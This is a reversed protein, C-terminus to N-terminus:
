VTLVTSMKFRLDKMLEDVKYGYDKFLAVNDGMDFETTGRIKMAETAQALREEDADVKPRFKYGEILENIRQKKEEKERATNAKDVVRKEIKERAAQDRLEVKDKNEDIKRKLEEQARLEKEAEEQEKLVRERTKTQKYEDAKSKAESAHARFEEARKQEAEEERKRELEQLAKITRMKDEYKELNEGHQQKIQRSKAEQKLATLKQEVEAQIRAVDQHLMDRVRQNLELRQKEATRKLAAVKQRAWREYEMSADITELERRSRKPFEILLREM